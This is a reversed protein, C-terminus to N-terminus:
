RFTRYIVFAGLSAVIILGSKLTEHNSEKKKKAKM